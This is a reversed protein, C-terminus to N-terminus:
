SEPQNSWRVPPNFEHVEIVNDELDLRCKKVEIEIDALATVTHSLATAIYRALRQIHEDDAAHRAPILALEAGASSLGYVPISLADLPPPTKGRLHLQRTIAVSICFADKEQDGERYPPTYWVEDGPSKHVNMVLSDTPLLLGADRLMLIHSYEIGDYQYAPLHEYVPLVDGWRFRLVAEFARATDRDLDRLVSLTRLSFTGPRAVEGAILRAYRERVADDSVDEADRLVRASFEPSTETRADPPPPLAKMQETMAPFLDAARAIVAEVRETRKLQKEFASAFFFLEIDTLTERKKIKEVIGDAVGMRIRHQVARQSFVVDTLSVRAKLPGAAAELTVASQEKDDAM